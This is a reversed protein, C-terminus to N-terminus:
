DVSQGRWGGHARARSPLLAHMSKTFCNNGCLRKDATTDWGAIANCEARERRNMRRAEPGSFKSVSRHDPMYSILLTHADVFGQTGIFETECTLTHVRTRKTGSM